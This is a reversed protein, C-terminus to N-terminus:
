LWFHFNQGEQNFTKKIVGLFIKIVMAAQKKTQTVKAVENVLDVKKM